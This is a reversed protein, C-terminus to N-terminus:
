EINEIVGTRRKEFFQWVEVQKLGKFFYKSLEEVTQYM